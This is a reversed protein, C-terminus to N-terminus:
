EFLWRYASAGWSALKTGGAIVAFGAGALSLDSAQWTMRSIMDAIESANLNLQGDKTFRLGLELKDNPRDSLPNKALLSVSYNNSSDLVPVLDKDVRMSLREVINDATIVLNRSGDAAAEGLALAKVAATYRSGLHMEEPLPFSVTLGRVDTLTPRDADQGIKFRADTSITVRAGGADYNVTGNDRTVIFQDGVKDCSKIGKFLNKVLDRLGQEPIKDAVKGLERTNLITKLDALTGVVNKLLEHGVGPFAQASPLAVTVDRQGVKVNVVLEQKGDKNTLEVRTIPFKLIGGAGSIRLGEIETLAATGEKADFLVNFTLRPSRVDGIQLEGFRLGQANIDFGKIVTPRTLQATFRDGELSIAKLNNLVQWANADLHVGPIAEFMRGFNTELTLKKGDLHLSANEPMRTIVTAIRDVPAQKDFKEKLRKELEPVDPIQGPQAAAFLMEPPAAPLAAAAFALDPRIAAGHHRQPPRGLDLPTIELFAKETALPKCGALSRMLDQHRIPLIPEDNRPRPWQEVDALLRRSVEQEANGSRHSQSPKDVDPV